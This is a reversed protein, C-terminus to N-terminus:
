GEQLEDPSALPSLSARWIWSVTKHGEGLAKSGSEHVIHGEGLARVDSANLPRIDKQWDGDGRLSQLADRIHRYRQATADINEATQHRLSQSRTNGSQGRVNVRTYKTYHVQILLHRRLTDLAEKAHAFRLESEVERLRPLSIMSPPATRPPPPFSSPLRLEVNEPQDQSDNSLAFPMLAQQM